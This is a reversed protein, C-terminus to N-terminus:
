ILAVHTIYDTLGAFQKTECTLPGPNSLAM